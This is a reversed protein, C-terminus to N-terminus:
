GGGRWMWRIGVERWEVLRWCVDVYGVYGVGGWLCLLYSLYGLYELLCCVGM